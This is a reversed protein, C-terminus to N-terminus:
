KLIELKKLPNKAFLVFLAAATALINFPISIIYLPLALQLGVPVHELMYQFSGAHDMLRGSQIDHYAWLMSSPISALIISAPVVLLGTFIRLWKKSESFVLKWLAAIIGFSFSMVWWYTAPNDWHYSPMKYFSGYPQNGFTSFSVFPFGTISFDFEIVQVIWYCLQGLLFCAFTYILFSKLFKM